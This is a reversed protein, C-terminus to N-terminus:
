RLHWSRQDTPVGQTGATQADQCFDFFQIMEQPSRLMLAADWQPKVETNSSVSGGEISTLLVQAAVQITSLELCTRLLGRSKAEIIVEQIWGMDNVARTPINVSLREVARITAADQSTRLQAYLCILLAIRGIRLGYLVLQSRFGLNLARSQTAATGANQVLEDLEKSKELKVGKQKHSDLEVKIAKECDEPPLFVKKLICVLIRNPGLNSTEEGMDNELGMRPFASNLEDGVTVLTDVVKTRLLMLTQFTERM